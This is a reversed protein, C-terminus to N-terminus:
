SKTVLREQLQMSVQRKIDGVDYQLANWVWWEPENPYGLSNQTMPPPLGIADKVVQTYGGLSRMHAASAGEVVGLVEAIVEGRRSAYLVDQRAKQLRLAFALAGSQDHQYVPM